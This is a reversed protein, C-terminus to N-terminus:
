EYAWTRKWVTGDLGLYILKGLHSTFSVVGSDVTPQEDTHWTQVRVGQQYMIVTWTPVVSTDDSGENDKLIALGGTLIIFFLTVLVFLLKKM